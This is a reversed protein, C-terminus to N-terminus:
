AGTQVAPEVSSVSKAVLDMGLERFTELCSSLLTAARERDGPEDRRLLMRAYDHQTRAAWPRAGMRENMELADEFHREANQWRALISALIGLPRAVSGTSIYDSTSANRAAHPSLLDYLTRARAADGLYEAVDALFGLSFLWENTRPLTAFDDAALDDLARRADAERALDAYLRALMCRFMPRAPYEEASRILIEELGDLRGQQWRLTFLHIRHSLVADAGQAHRGVELAEEILAEAEELRGEFLALTARTALLLWLQAPQRLEEALLAYEDLGASVAPMDGLELQFMMRYYRAAAAQERDGVNEALQLLENAIAIREEPNEPWFIAMCRGQLAYALTSPDGIRRAMEVAEASLAARPERARQDRLAGALRALVRVRLPSDNEELAALASELLPVVNRDTGARAWVFRGGYGLAARALREPSEARRALEAARLFTEKATPEEGSRTQADGLALLLEGHGDDDRRGTSELAQLAVQFLRVAEEYALLRAAREGARRAYDIAKDVDGGVAAATFHHALEALHPEPDQAYLRELAEGVQRHLRVRRAPSMEDYLVDRILAHSFRIRGAAAAVGPVEVLARAALAEDLMDLLEDKGLGSVLALADLDVDRGLVSATSLLTKCGESFRRLRSGIVARVSEPIRLRSPEEDRFDILRRESALLRVVEGVFLPNGETERHVVAVLDQTPQVGESQEIFSAVEREELGALPLPRTATQRTLEALASSLPEGLTPEIDRYAGLIMVRAQPLEGAVFQLLLLSPADAAHLDDLVLILPQANAANKLFLATADFLRFRAGEPDLAPPTALDPFLEVLEPVIQALDSAGSGLELRLREPDRNPLYARITQVWPWYAPAGGAEWCRGVLVQAGRERAETAVEDALRSKGIGPEGSVLFLRGRGAFASDLGSRLEGLERERGVFVARAKLRKDKDPRPAPRPIGGEPQAPTELSPDHTLIAKELRQLEPGPELGLEEALARRAERYAALADAQRGSRYLALMLQARLRERLPHRAVLAELETVLDSHRGLALDVELREETAALRREDLWAIETEAFSEYAFEALPSGRWLALAERLKAAAAAPDCKRADELLAEFRELDLQGPEISLIYGPPRSLLVDQGLAKRLRSVYVHVTKAGTAPPSEGWLEDVLRETPVIENRHLLLVALLARQKLGGLSISRGEDVVDLPGLIRFEM